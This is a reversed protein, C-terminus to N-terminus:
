QGLSREPRHDATTLFTEPDGWRSIRSIQSSAHLTFVPLNLGGQFMHGKETVTGGHALGHRYRHDNQHAQHQEQLEQQPKSDGECSPIDHEYHAAIGEESVLGM